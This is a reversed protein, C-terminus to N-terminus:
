VVYCFLLCCESKFVCEVVCVVGYVDVCIRVGYVVCLDFCAHFVYVCGYAVCLGVASFVVVNCIGNRLLVRWLLVDYWLGVRFMCNGVRSESKFLVVSSLCGDGSHGKAFGFLVCKNLQVFIFLCNLTVSKHVDGMSTLLKSALYVPRDNLLGAQINASRTPSDDALTGLFLHQVVVLFPFVLKCCIFNCFYYRLYM